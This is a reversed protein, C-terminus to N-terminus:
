RDLLSFETPGAVVLHVIHARRTRERLEDLEDQLSNIQGETEEFSTCEPTVFLRGDRRTRPRWGDGGGCGASGATEANARRENAKATLHGSRYVLCSLLDAGM